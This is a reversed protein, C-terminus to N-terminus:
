ETEDRESHSHSSHSSLLQLTSTLLPKDTTINQFMTSKEAEPHEAM